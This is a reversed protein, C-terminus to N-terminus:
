LWYTTTEGRRPCAFREVPAQNKSLLFDVIASL